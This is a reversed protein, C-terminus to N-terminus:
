KRSNSTAFGTTIPAWQGGLLGGYAMPVSPIMSGFNTMLNLRAGMNNTWKDHIQSVANMGPINNAIRNGTGAQDFFGPKEGPLIERNHGFVSFGEPSEGNSGKIYYGNETYEGPSADPSYTTNARFMESISAAGATYVFGTEYRGGNMATIMGGAHGKGIIRAYWPIQAQDLSQFLAGTAAGQLGGSIVGGLYEGGQKHSMYGGAIGGSVAGWGAGCGGCYWTGVAAGIIAEAALINRGGESQYLISGGGLLGLPGFMQLGLGFTENHKSVFRATARLNKSLWSHGSPDTLNIPNNRVYAYRNMSQPDYPAQVITDPTIFRGNGPDYYRAQAGSYAATCLIIAMLCSNLKM